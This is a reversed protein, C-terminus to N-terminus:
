AKLDAYGKEGVMKYTIDSLVKFFYYLLKDEKREEKPRGVLGIDALVNVLKASVRSIENQDALPNDLVAQVEDIAAQLAAKQEDTLESTDVELAKKLLDYKLSRANRGVLFQPYKPDSFINEIRDSSM